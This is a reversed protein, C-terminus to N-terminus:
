NSGSPKATPGTDGAHFPDREVKTTLKLTVIENDPDNSKITITKNNEGIRGTSDFTASVESEQGPKIVKEKLEPVTCGCSGKAYEIILDKKGTNKFTYVHKVKEGDIVTGANYELHTFSINPASDKEAATLVKNFSGYISLQKENGAPDNTKLIATKSFSGVADYKTGDVTVKVMGEKGAALEKFNPEVKLMKETQNSGDLTITTNGTNRVRFDITKSKDTDLSGIHDSTKDFALNGIAFNYAIAPTAPAVVKNTDVIEGSITLIIPKQTTDRLKVTITKNFSGVRHSDYGVPIEGKSDAKIPDQTWHPTTCGCSAKVSELQIPGDSVNTFRFVFETKDGKYVKGFDHKTTEFVIKGPQAFACFCALLFFCQLSLVKMKM